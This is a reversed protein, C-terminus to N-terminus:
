AAAEAFTLAAACWEPERRDFTGFVWHPGFRGGLDLTVGATRYYHVVEAGAARALAFESPALRMGYETGLAAAFVVGRVPAVLVPSGCVLARCEVPLHPALLDWLHEIIDPHSGFRARSGVPAAASEISRARETGGAGCLYELVGHNVPGDSDLRM